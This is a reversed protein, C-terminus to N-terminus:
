NILILTRQELIKIFHYKFCPILKREKVSFEIIGLGENFIFNLIKCKVLKVSCPQRAQKMAKIEDFSKKHLKNAERLIRKLTVDSEVDGHETEFHKKMMGKSISTFDCNECNMKPTVLCVKM